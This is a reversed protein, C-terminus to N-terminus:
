ARWGLIARRIFLGPYITKQAGPKDYDIQFVIKFPEGDYYRLFTEEGNLYKVSYGGTITGTVTAIATGAEAQQASVLTLVVSFL